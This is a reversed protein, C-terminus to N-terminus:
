GSALADAVVAAATVVEAETTFRGVSFRVTGMALDVPVQMAALVSSMEVGDAHCAAGPSAAVRDGLDRLLGAADVGPFSVSLTNPLGSELDGNVALPGMREQLAALLMDRLTRSHAMGEPLEERALRAAEGLGVIELVNETGARRGQEHNAGHIFRPIECGRRIYLAGIGKPGYLKHSAVTLLDVGLDDVNVPIKSVSQAADSHLWVDRARCLTSLEAIPQVRGVENNVHMVSVLVTDPRLAAALDDPDVRGSADVPLVQLECGQQELVRCPELVAPHEVASTILHRGRRHRAAAVGFIAMNDSETGGSTFVIEDPEAGLLAAVHGRATRVAEGAERGFVHSSSPNGFHGRLFPEMADAVRPDLPTTANYDLYIPQHNM